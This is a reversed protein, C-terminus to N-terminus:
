LALRLFRAALVIKLVKEIEFDVPLVMQPALGRHRKRVEHTRVM